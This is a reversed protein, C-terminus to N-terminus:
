KSYVLALRAIGHCYYCADLHHHADPHDARKLFGSNYEANTAAVDYVLAPFERPPSIPAPPVYLFDSDQQVAPPTYKMENDM